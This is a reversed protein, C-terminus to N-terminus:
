RGSFGIPWLKDALQRHQWEREETEIDGAAAAMASVAYTAAHAAHTIVHATAAAHGASRAAARAAHNDTARAAAHAAFAAARAERIKLTGHAWARAAEIANRPRRDEPYQEEFQSLAREACDAAWLAMSQKEKEG